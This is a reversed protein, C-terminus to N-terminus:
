HIPLDGQSGQYEGMAEEHCLLISAWNIELGEKLAAVVMGGLKLTVRKPKEPHIIPLLFYLIRRMGEDICQDSSWGEKVDFKGAFYADLKNEGKVLMKLGSSPVGFAQGINDENWAAPKGRRTKNLSVPVPKGLLERLM